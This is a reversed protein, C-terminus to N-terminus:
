PIPTQLKNAEQNKFAEDSSSSFPFKVSM